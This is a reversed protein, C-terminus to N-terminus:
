GFLSAAVGGLNPLDFMRIGFERRVGQGETNLEDM